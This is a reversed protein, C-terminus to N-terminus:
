NNERFYDPDGIKEGIEITDPDIYYGYPELFNVGKIIATAPNLDSVVFTKTSKNWWHKKKIAVKAIFTYGVGSILMIGVSVKGPIEWEITNKHHARSEVRPIPILNTESM